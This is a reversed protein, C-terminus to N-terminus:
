KNALVINRPLVQKGGCHNRNHWNYNQKNHDLLIQNTAQGGAAHFSNPQILRKQGAMCMKEHVLRLPLQRNLLQQNIQFQGRKLNGRLDHSGVEGLDVVQTGIQHIESSCPQYSLTHLLHM